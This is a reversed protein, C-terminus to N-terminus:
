PQYIARVQTHVKKYKISKLMQHDSKHTMQYASSHLLKCIKTKGTNKVNNEQKNKLKSSEKILEKGDRFEIPSIVLILFILKRIIM